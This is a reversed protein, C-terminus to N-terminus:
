RISGRNKGGGRAVPQKGRGAGPAIDVGTPTPPATLAQNLNLPRTSLLPSTLTPTTTLTLITALNLLFILTLALTLTPNPTLLRTLSPSQSPLTQGSVSKRDLPAAWCPGCQLVVPWLWSGWLARVGASVAWAWHWVPVFPVSLPVATVVAAFDGSSPRTGGRSVCTVTPRESAGGRGGEM